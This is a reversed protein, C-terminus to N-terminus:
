LILCLKNFHNLLRHASDTTDAGSSRVASCFALTNTTVSSAATCSVKLFPQLDQGPLLSGHEPLYLATDASSATDTTTELRHYIKRQLIQNVQFFLDLAKRFFLADSLLFRGSRASHQAIGFKTFLAGSALLEPLSLFVPSSDASSSLNLFSLRLFYILFLFFAPFLSLHLQFSQLLIERDKLGNSAATRYKKM